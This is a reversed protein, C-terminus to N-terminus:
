PSGMKRLVPGMQRQIEDMRQTPLRICDTVFHTHLWTRHRRLIKM